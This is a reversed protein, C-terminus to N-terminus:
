ENEGLESKLRKIRKKYRSSIGFTATVLVFLTFFTIGYAITVFDM